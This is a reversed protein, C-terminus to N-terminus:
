QEGELIATVAQNLDEYIPVVVDPPVGVATARGKGTRVLHFVVNAAVAAQRDTEADGIMLTAEAPIHFFAMAELLMLPGPKRRLSANEPADPAVFLADVTAGSLRLEAFLKAHISDLMAQDIIGRGVNAQNTVIATKIGARNLRAIADAAGDIVVLDDPHKVSDARDHNIVGDRDLLVLRPIM